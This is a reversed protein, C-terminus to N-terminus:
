QSCVSVELADIIKKCAKLVHDMSGAIEKRDRDKAWEFVTATDCDQSGLQLYASLVFSCAEAEHLVCIGYQQKLFEQSVCRLMDYPSMSELVQNCLPSLAHFLDERTEYLPDEAEGSLEPIRKGETQSADYVYVVRYDMYHICEKKTKRNGDEDLEIDGNENKIEKTVWTQKPVPAFLEIYNKNEAPIVKRGKKIWGGYTQVMTANPFKAYILLQNNYSYHHFSAAFLLFKKLTEEEHWIIDQEKEVMEQMLRKQEKVEDNNKRPNRKYGAM